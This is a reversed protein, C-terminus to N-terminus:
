CARRQRRMMGFGGLLLLIGAAAPEPVSAVVASTQFDFTFGLIEEGRNQLVFAYDGAALPANGDFRVPSIAQGTNLGTSLEPLLNQDVSGFNILTFGLAQNAFAVRGADDLAPSGDLTPGAAFGLFAAAFGTTETVLISDLQLGTPVELTFFDLDGSGPSLAEAESFGISEQLVNSGLTLTIRTPDTFDNSTDTIQGRVDQPVILAFAFAVLLGFTMSHPM